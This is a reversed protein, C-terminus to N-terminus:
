PPFSRWRPPRVGSSRPGLGVTKAGAKAAMAVVAESDPTVRFLEVRQNVQPM